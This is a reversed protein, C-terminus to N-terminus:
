CQISIATLNLCVGFLPFAKPWLASRIYCSNEYVNVCMYVFACVSVFVCVIM